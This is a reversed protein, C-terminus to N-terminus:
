RPNRRYYADDFYIARDGPNTAIDASVVGVSDLADSIADMDGRPTIDPDGGIRACVARLTKAEAATLTLIVDPEVVPERTANAM